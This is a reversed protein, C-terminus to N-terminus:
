NFDTDQSRTIAELIFVKHSLTDPDNNITLKYGEAFNSHVYNNNQDTELTPAWSLNDVVIQGVDEFGLSDSLGMAAAPLRITIVQSNNDSELGYFAVGTIHFGCTSDKIEFEGMYNWVAPYSHKWLPEIVKKIVACAETFNDGLAVGKLAPQAMAVSSLMTFGLISLLLKNIKAM